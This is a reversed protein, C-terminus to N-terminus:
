MYDVFTMQMPGQMFMVLDLAISIVLWLVGLMIGEKLFSTEIKKFYLISLSVTAITLVVPMISEFLPRENARLPFIMIAILFPVVWVLFGYFLATKPSRM